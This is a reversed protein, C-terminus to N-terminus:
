VEIGRLRVLPAATGASGRHRVTGAPRFAESGAFHCAAVGAGAPALPPTETRCVDRDRGVPCRPQFPCGARSGASSTPPQGPIPPLRADSHLSPRCSLLGMTYPHQPDALVSRTAGSEMVRGAYLVTLSDTNEAIVGLDHSILISAGRNRTKLTRLLDLIQ